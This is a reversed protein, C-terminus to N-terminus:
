MKWERLDIYGNYLTCYKNEKDIYKCDSCLRGKYLKSVTDLWESISDIIEKDLQIKNLDGDTAEIRIRGDSLSIIIYVGIDSKDEGTKYLVTICCADGLMKAVVYEAKNPLLENPLEVDELWDNTAPVGRFQCLIDYFGIFSISQTEYWLGLNEFKM